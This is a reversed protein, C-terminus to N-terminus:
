VRRARSVSPNNAIHFRLPLDVANRIGIRPTVKIEPPAWDDNFLRLPSQPSLLDLGNHHPRNLGLAQCLLGPGATLKRDPATLPLDRNHAMTDRGLVPELARVLICGAKGLPECTVNMCFYMGYIFYVYAHGPAGFMVANRPTPGRFSHSAPDPPDNHPGLYAELEVIRGALWGQQTHHALLKGLLQPAVIEPPREFFPRPIPHWGKPPSAVGTDEQNV